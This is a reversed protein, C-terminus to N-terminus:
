SIDQYQSLYKLYDEIEAGTILDAGTDTYIDVTGGDILKLAAELAIEAMKAPYQAVTGLLEGNKVMKVAELTADYGIVGIQDQLGAEQIARYGGIAMNDNGCFVLEIDPNALLMNQMTTYGLDVEFDANQEAVITVTDGAGELFGNRRDHTNQHTELGDLLALKTGKEYNQAVWEGAKVAGNFNNTGIYPVPNLGAEEVMEKSLWTDINIFPVGADQCAKIGPLLAESADPSIIIAECGAALMNEIFGIQEDACNAKEAGQVMLEINHQEAYKEAGGLMTIYFENTLQLVIFGILHKKGNDVPKTAEETTKVQESPHENVSVDSKPSDSTAPAGSDCSAATLGLAILMLIALVLSLCRKM